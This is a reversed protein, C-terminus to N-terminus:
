LYKKNELFLSNHSHESPDCSPILSVRGRKLRDTNVVVVFYWDNESDSMDIRLQIKM